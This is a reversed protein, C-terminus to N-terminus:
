IKELEKIFDSIIKQFQINNEDKKISKIKAIYITLLNKILVIKQKANEIINKLQMQPIQLNIQYELIINNENSKQKKEFLDFFYFVEDDKRVLKNLQQSNKMEGLFSFFCFNDLSSMIFNLLYIQIDLDKIFIQTYLRLFLQQHFSKLIIKFFDDQFILIWEDLQASQKSPLKQTTTKQHEEINDKTEINQQELSILNTQLNMQETNQNNM